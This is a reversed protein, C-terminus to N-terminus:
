KAEDAKAAEEKTEEPEAPTEEKKEEAPADDKTDAEPATKEEPQEANDTEQPTEAVPTEDEKPAAEAEAKAKKEERAKQAEEEAKAKEEKRKKKEKTGLASVNRKKEEIIGETVLINHVRDTPQAGKSIWYKAREADLQLEKSRPNFHGINEVYDGYVDKTSELVLIRFFPMKKRGTRSFKIKLM